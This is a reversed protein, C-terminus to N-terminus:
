VLIVSRCQASTCLNSQCKVFMPDNSCLGRKVKISNAKHYAVEFETRRLAEAELEAESLLATPPDSAAGDAGVTTVNTASLNAYVPLPIHPLPNFGLMWGELLVVDVPGTYITINFSSNVSTSSFLVICAGQLAAPNCNRCVSFSKTGTVTLWSEQSIRDGRGDRLAKDYRPIRAIQGPQLSSFSHLTTM